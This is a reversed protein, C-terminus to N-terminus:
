LDGPKLGVPPSVLEEYELAAAILECTLNPYTQLLDEHPIVRAEAAIELAGLRTGILTPIGRRINFDEVVLPHLSLRAALREVTERLLEVHVELEKQAMDEIPKWGMTLVEVM